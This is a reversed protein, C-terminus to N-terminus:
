HVRWRRRYPQSVAVGPVRSRADEGDVQLRHRRPAPWLFSLTIGLFCSIAANFRAGPIGLHESDIDMLKLEFDSVRDQNPSEFILNLADGTDEVGGGRADVGLARLEGRLEGGPELLGVRPGRLGLVRVAELLERGLLHVLVVLGVKADLGADRAEM